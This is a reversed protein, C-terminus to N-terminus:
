NGLTGAEWEFSKKQGKLFLQNQKPETKNMARKMQKSTDRGESVSCRSLLLSTENSIFFMRIHTKCLIKLACM